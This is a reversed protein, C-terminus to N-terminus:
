YITQSGHKHNIVTVQFYGIVYELLHLCYQNCIDKDIYSHFIDLDEISYKLWIIRSEFKRPASKNTHRKSTSTHIISMGINYTACDVINM